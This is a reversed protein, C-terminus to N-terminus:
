YSDDCNLQASRERIRRSDAKLGKELRDIWEGFDPEKWRGDKGKEENKQKEVEEIFQKKGKNKSVAMVECVDLMDEFSDLDAGKLISSM